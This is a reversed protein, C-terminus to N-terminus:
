RVEGFRHWAACRSELCNLKKGILHLETNSEQQVKALHHLALPVGLLLKSGNAKSGQNFGCWFISEDDNCFAEPALRV